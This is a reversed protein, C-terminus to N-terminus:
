AVARRPVPRCLYDGVVLDRLERPCAAMIVQGSDRRAAEWWGSVEDYRFRYAEGWHFCLDALVQDVWGLRPGSGADM